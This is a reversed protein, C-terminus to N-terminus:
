PAITFSGSTIAVSYPMARELRLKAFQTLINPVELRYSGGTLRSALLTWTAGGDNSIFLDM